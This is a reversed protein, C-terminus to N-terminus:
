WEDKNQAIGNLICIYFGILEYVFDNFTCLEYGLKVHIHMKHKDSHMFAACFWSVQKQKGKQYAYM